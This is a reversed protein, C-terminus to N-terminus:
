NCLNIEFSSKEIEAKLMSRVQLNLEQAVIKFSTNKEVQDLYSADAYNVPADVNCVGFAKMDDASFAWLGGASKPEQGARTIYESVRVTQFFARQIPRSRISYNYYKILEPNSMWKADNDSIKENAALKQNLKQYRDSISRFNNKKQVAM